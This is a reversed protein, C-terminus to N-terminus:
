AAPELRVTYGLKELRTVLSRQLHARDRQEFYDAGLNAYPRQDRLVHYAIVVLSHAVAVLARKKGRRHALRHYQARLYSDKKFRAGHAAEVLTHRLWRNGPRTRGSRRKGASEAQGPCVACWSACHAATPFRHMDPGIEAVLSEAARRNIGPITDLLAIAPEYPRSQEELVRSVRAIAAELEDIRTLHEDLLFRHHLSVHGRLAAELASQKERLRGQALAALRAPDTEGAVLAKLMARSSVGLVDTVVDGLKLNADELVKQLRNIVRAREQVLTTRHRTLDRLERQARPPVLSGRVLGHQLLQAIWEADQVDTKRGPVMKLHRTNALVLTWRADPELVNYIPKWYVGTSELAIAECREAQLWAALGELDALTTAFRRVARGGESTPRILCAVLFTKHVDLGCCRKYVVEM